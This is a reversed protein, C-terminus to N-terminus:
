RPGGDTRCAQVSAWAVGGVGSITFALGTFSSAVGVRYLYRARPATDTAMMRNELVEGAVMGGLGVGAM